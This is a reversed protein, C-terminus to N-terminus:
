SARAADPAAAPLVVEFVSGSASSQVLRVSGGHAEAIWKVMSLGLGAGDGTRARDGRFFRDFIHPQDAPSIGRGHDSVTIVANTGARYADLSVIGGDHSFKVANDILNLLMRRVLEADGNVILDHGTRSRIEVGHARALTRATRVSEEIVEALPLPRRSLAIQRADARALMLVGEILHTLHASESQVIELAKRYDNADRERSLALEAESRIVAVPTRLEHSTDAILQRQQAFSRELRDLLANLVEALRGLEDGANPVAIRASLDEAEIHSATEAIRGVPALSRGAVFYGGVAAILLAAPIALAFAVRVRGLVERERTEPQTVVLAFEKDVPTVIARVGPSFRIIRTHGRFADAIAELVLPSPPRAHPGAIQNSRPGYVIIEGEGAGTNRVAERVATQQPEEVSESAYVRAFAMARERLVRDVRSREQRELFEYVGSAFVALMVALLFVNWATLRIRLPISM